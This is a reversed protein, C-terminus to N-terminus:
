NLFSVLLDVYRDLVYPTPYEIIERIYSHREDESKFGPLGPDEILSVLADYLDDRCRLATSPMYHALTTINAHLYEPALVPKNLMVAESVVSTGIDLILDSWEILASSHVNDSVFEINKRNAWPEHQAALYKRMSLTSQRTHHKVVLYLEDFQTILSLTRGLEEWFVPFTPNRLFLVVHRRNGVHPNAYPPVLPSLIELWERNYRPSGLVHICDASRFPRYRNATLENPVVIHNFADNHFRSWFKYDLHRQYFM